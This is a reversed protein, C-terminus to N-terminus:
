VAVGADALARMTQSFVGAHGAPYPRRYLFGIRLARM